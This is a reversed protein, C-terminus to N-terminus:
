RNTLGVAVNQFVGGLTNREEQSFAQYLVDGLVESAITGGTKSGYSGAFVDVMYANLVKALSADITYIRGDHAEPGGLVLEDTTNSLIRTTSATQSTSAVGNTVNAIYSNVCFHLLVELARFSSTTPNTYIIFIDAISALVLNPDNDYSITTGPSINLVATEASGSLFAGNPLSALRSTVALQSTVDNTALCVSLSTFPRFRSDGTSCAPPLLPITENAPTFLATQIARKQDLALGGHPSLSISPSSYSTILLVSATGNAAPSLRTPHAIALQTLPSTVLTILLLVSALIGL